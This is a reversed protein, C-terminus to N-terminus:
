YEDLDERHELIIKDYRHTAAYQILEQLNVDAATSYWLVSHPNLNEFGSLVSVSKELYAAYSGFTEEIYPGLAAELIEEHPIIQIKKVLTGNQDVVTYDTGLSEINTIKFMLKVECQHHGLKHDELNGQPIEGQQCWLRDFVFTGM